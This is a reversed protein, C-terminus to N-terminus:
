TKLVGHGRFSIVGNALTAAKPEARTYATREPDPYQQEPQGDFAVIAYGTFSFRIHYM